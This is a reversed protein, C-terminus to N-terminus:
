GGGQELRGQVGKKAVGKAVWVSKKKPDVCGSAVSFWGGSDRGIGVKASGDTPTQYLCRARHFISHM